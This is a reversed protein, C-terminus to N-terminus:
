TWRTVSAKRALITSRAIVAIRVSRVSTVAYRALAVTMGFSTIAVGSDTVRTLVVRGAIVAILANFSVVAVSSTSGRIVTHDARTWQRNIRVVKCGRAVNRFIPVLNVALAFRTVGSFLTLATSWSEKSLRLDLAFHAFRAVARSVDVGFLRSRAIGHRAFTQHTQVVRVTPGTVQAGGSEVTVCNLQLIALATNAVSDTRFVAIVKHSRAVTVRVHNAFLTITALVVM